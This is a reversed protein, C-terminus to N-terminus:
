LFILVSALTIILSLFTGILYKQAFNKDELQKFRSISKATFVLAISGWLNLLILIVIFIRELVGIFSGYNFQDYLKVKDESIDDNTKTNMIVIDLPLSKEIIISTPKIIISFILLISIIKEFSITIGLYEIFNIYHTNIYFQDKLILWGVIVFLIHISQNLLLIKLSKDKKFIRSFLYDTLFHIILMMITVITTLMIKDSFFILIFLIISFYISHSLLCFIKNKKNIIKKNPLIYFYGLIHFLLMLKLFLM